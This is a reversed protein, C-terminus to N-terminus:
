ALLEPPAFPRANALAPIASRAKAVAAPDLDVVLVGPEDDVFLVTRM